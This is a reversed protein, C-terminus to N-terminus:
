AGSTSVSKRRHQIALEYARVHTEAYRDLSFRHEAEKRAARGFEERREDDGLLESIRSAMAVFDLSSVVYGTKGDVVAEKVSAVDSAVVPVGCGMAELIVTPMGESNPVSALAFVDSSRLIDAIDSRPGLFFVDQGVVLGAQSAQDQLREFYAQHQEYLHGVVIFVTDPHQQKVIATARLFYEHGKQPNINGIVTVCKTQPSIRLEQRLRSSGNPTFEDLDVPPFFLVCRDGFAAAGPHADRVAEGIPMVVDALNYILRMMLKRIRLPPRTDVIQWVVPIRMARAVIAAHPNMLSSLQVVDPREKRFLFALNWLDLPFRGIMALQTRLDKVARVRGLPVRRVELDGAQLRDAGPGAPLVTLLDIDGRDISAKLRLLQNHPGGFEPYHMAAIVKPLNSRVLEYRQLHCSWQVAM